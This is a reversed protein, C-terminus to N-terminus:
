GLVADIQAELAKKYHTLIIQKINQIDEMEDDWITIVTYGAKSLDENKKKDKRITKELSHYYRGNIEVIINMGLYFDIRYGEINEQFFYTMNLEDLIRSFQKEPVSMQLQRNIKTKFNSGFDQRRWKGVTTRNLNWKDAVEANSMRVNIYDNWFEEGEPMSRNAYKVVGHRLGLLQLKKTVGFESLRREKAMEEITKISHNAQYYEIDGKTIESSTVKKLNLEQGKNTITKLSTNFYFAIDILSYDKSNYMQILEEEKEKTWKFKKGKKNTNSQVLEIDFEKLARTVVSRNRGIAKAINVRTEGKAALDKITQIQEATLEIKAPM